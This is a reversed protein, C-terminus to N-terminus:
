CATACARTRACAGTKEEMEGGLGRLLVPTVPPVLQGDTLAARTADLRSQPDFGRTM